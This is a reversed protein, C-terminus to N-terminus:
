LKKQKKNKMKLLLVHKSELFHLSHFDLCKVYM